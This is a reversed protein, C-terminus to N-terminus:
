GDGGPGGDLYITANHESATKKFQIFHLRITRIKTTRNEFAVLDGCSFDNGESVGLSGDVVFKCTAPEIRPVTGPDPPDPPGDPTPDIPSKGGDGCAALLIALGLPRKM